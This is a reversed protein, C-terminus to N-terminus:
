GDTGVNKKESSGVRQLQLYHEEAAKLREKILNLEKKPTAIGRKSKKQFAHLVYVADGFRVTYVARFTGGEGNSIVELVSAGGFGVLPTVNLAKDGNQAMHLSFGVEQRVEPPFDRIDKLTSGLWYIDKM